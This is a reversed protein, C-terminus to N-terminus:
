APDYRRIAEILGLCGEQVLDDFARGHTRDLQRAIKLVLRLNSEVLRREIVPDGTQRLRRILRDQEPAPLPNTRMTMWADHSM